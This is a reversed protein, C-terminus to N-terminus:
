PTSWFTWKPKEMFYFAHKENEGIVNNIQISQTHQSDGMHYFM